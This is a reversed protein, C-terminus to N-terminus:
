FRYGMSLGLVPLKGYKTYTDNLRADLAENIAPLRASVEPLAAVAAPVAVHSSSSVSQLYALSARIVFHDAVVWRWGVGVHVNHITTSVTVDGDPISAPLSTGAAAAVADKASIGGGLSMVTYGGMIEFGHGSFPRMGASLRGVLSNKLGDRVLSSTTADYTGASVLASDLANIFAPPLAGLEGQLLIRYPLEFTAQGGIMLPLQTVLALDVAPGDASDKRPPPLADPQPAVAPRESAYGSAGFGYTMQFPSASAPQGWTSPAPQAYGFASPPAVPRPAPPAVPPAVPRPAPLAVPPAGPTTFGDPVPALTQASAASGALLAAVSLAVSLALSSAVRPRASSHRSSHHSSHHSSLRKM